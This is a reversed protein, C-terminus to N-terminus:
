PPEHLEIPIGVPDEILIQRACETITVILDARTFVAEELARLRAAEKVIRVRDEHSFAAVGAAIEGPHKRSM